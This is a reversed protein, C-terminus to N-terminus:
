LFLTRRIVIQYDREKGDTSTVKFTAVEPHQSSILQLTSYVLTLPNRIEHSITSITMQHSDLLRTLLEAKESSEEMIQQLKDYDTESFM